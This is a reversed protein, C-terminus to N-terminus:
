IFFYSFIFRNHSFSLMATDNFLIFHGWWKFHGKGPAWFLDWRGTKVWLCTSSAPCMKQFSPGGGRHAEFTMALLTGLHTGDAKLRRQCIPVLNQNRLESIAEYKICPLNPECVANLWPKNLWPQLNLWVQIVFIEVWLDYIFLGAFLCALNYIQLKFHM